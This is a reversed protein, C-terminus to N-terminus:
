AVHEHEGDRKRLVSLMWAVINYMSMRRRSYCLGCRIFDIYEQHRKRSENCYESVFTNWLDKTATSQGRRKADYFLRECRQFLGPYYLGQADVPLYLPHEVKLKQVYESVEQKGFTFGEGAVVHGARDRLEYRYKGHKSVPTLGYSELMRIDRIHLQAKGSANVRRIRKPPKRKHKSM